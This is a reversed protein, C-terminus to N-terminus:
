YDTDVITPFFALGELSVATEISVEDGDMGIEYRHVGGLHDIGILQPTEGRSVTISSDGNAAGRGVVTETEMDVAWIEAAPTKHTGDGPNEHMTVFLTDSPEHYAMLNYGSPAWGEEAFDITKVLSPAEGSDDVVYFSGGYSVYVLNGDVRVANGFLPDQEPDFVPESKAGEGASGDASYSYKAITGDGCLTTFANGELTPYATWCGPTPIEVLDTGSELDVINVSTAPTANQLVLFDGDASLNITGRQSLAQALKPSVTFERNAVLTAADWEHVVAEVEGYSYRSMYVSATWVSAQDPGMMLQSFTGAGITGELTLDEANLVSVQSPGSLGMDMVYVHDGESIREEVTLTEPEIDTEQGFGQSAPIVAVSIALILNQKM